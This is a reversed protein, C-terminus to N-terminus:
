DHIQQIARVQEPRLYPKIKPSKDSSERFWKSPNLWRRVPSHEKCEKNKDSRRFLEVAPIGRSLTPLLLSILIEMMTRWLRVLLKAFVQPDMSQCFGEIKECLFTTLPAISGNANICIELYNCLNDRMREVLVSLMYNLHSNLSRVTCMGLQRKVWCIGVQIEGRDDSTGNSLAYWSVIESDVVDSEFLAMGLIVGM